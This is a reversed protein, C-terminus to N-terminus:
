ADSPPRLGVIEEAKRLVAVVESQSRGPADNWEDIWSYGTLRLVEDELSELQMQVPISVTIAGAACWKCANPSLIGVKIGQSDEAMTGQCWGSAVIDSPLKNRMTNM